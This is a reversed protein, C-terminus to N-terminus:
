HSQETEFMKYHNKTFIEPGAQEVYLRVFAERLQKACNSYYMVGRVPFFASIHLPVFQHKSSRTVEQKIKASAFTVGEFSEVRM